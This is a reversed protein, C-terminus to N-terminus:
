MDDEPFSFKGDRDLQIEVTGTILPNIANEPKNLYVDGNLNMKMFLPGNVQYALIGTWVNLKPSVPYARSLRM